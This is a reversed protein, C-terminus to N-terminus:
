NYFVHGGITAIQHMDWQPRVNAAHFHTPGGPQPGLLMAFMAVGLSHRYEAANKPEDTLGDCWWSFQCHFKGPKRTETVVGCVTDPFGDSAVRALVVSAVALQGAVPEGRAEFYVTRALCSVEEPDTILAATNPLLSSPKTLLALSDNVLSATESEVTAVMEPATLMLPQGSMVTAPMCLLCVISILVRM